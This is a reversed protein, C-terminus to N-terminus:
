SLSSLIRDTDDKKLYVLFCEAIVLTPASTDVGFGVLSERLQETNRIDQSFLKYQQSNIQNESVVEAEGDQQSIYELMKQNSRIVKIKKTVVEAFDVEVVTIKGRLSEPIEGREISEQLWFFTTEYGAGLFLINVKNVTSSEILKAYTTVFRLIVQRISFVRAWTGRTIIPLLKKKSKLFLNAYTDRFYGKEATVRYCDVM